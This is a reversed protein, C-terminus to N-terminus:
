QMVFYIIAFAIIILATSIVLIWRAIGPTSGARAETQTRHVEPDAM